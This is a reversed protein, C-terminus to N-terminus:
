SRQIDGRCKVSEGSRAKNSKASSGKVRPLVRLETVGHDLAVYIPLKFM